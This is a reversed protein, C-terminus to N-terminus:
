GTADRRGGDATIFSSMEKHVSELLGAESKKKEKQLNLTFFTFGTVPTKQCPHFCFM